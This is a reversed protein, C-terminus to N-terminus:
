FALAGRREAFKWEGGCRVFRDHFSGIKPASGTTYLAMASEGQAENESIVDIVINSCIHRATRAERARFAELINVRGEVWLDPASPRTMRGGEAYLGALREWDGADNLNAYLSILRACDQEIGRREEPTM